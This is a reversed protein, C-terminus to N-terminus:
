KRKINRTKTQVWNGNDCRLQFPGKASNVRAGNSFEGEAQCTCRGYEAAPGPSCYVPPPEPVHVVTSSRERIAKSTTVWEPGYVPKGTRQTEWGDLSRVCMQEPGNGMQIVTGEPYEVSGSTCTITKQSKSQDAKAHTGRASAVTFLGMLLPIGIIAAILSGVLVKPARLFPKGSSLSM